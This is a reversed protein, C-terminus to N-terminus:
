SVARNVVSVGNSRYPLSTYLLCREYQRIDTNDDIVLVTPRNTNDSVLRQVRGRSRDGDDIYQLVSEDVVNKGASASANVSNDVIDVSDRICMQTIM